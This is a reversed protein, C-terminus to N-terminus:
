NLPCGTNNEADLAAALALMADRSGSALATNVQSIVDAPTRPYNVSPHAANLVGAIGARVLLEAAGSVGSGGSFGMADLLTAAGISPYRSSESFMASVTQSPSYGTPPWSGTHNRWYGPVCGQPSSTGTYNAPDSASVSRGLAMGTATGINTHLGLAATGSASCTMTEGAALSAKPCTVTVGTNDTVAVSTLSIDGLNTVVYTWSVLGGVLVQVGPSTDADQGNVRTELSILANYGFYYAPDSSSVSGGIGDSATATGIASVQGTMAVSQATCTMSEGPSLSTKPCTVTMGGDATVTVSTLPASGTNTVVFTWSMSDGAFVQPGPPADADQGNVLLELSIAATLGVYYAPDSDTVDGGCPPTGTVSGVHVNSGALATGSAVCTMSEWPQLTTKPCAVAIGHDDTVAIAGLAVNGVNTVVYTLLLPSGVPLQSGPAVDAEVGNVLLELDVASHLEGFYHAVDDDSVDGGHVPSGFATALNSQACPLAVAQGTCTMSEGPELSGKPCDIIAVKDDVVRVSNLTETGANTVIFRFEIVEGIAISPGPPTNADAGNVTKVLQIAPEVARGFYHLPASVEIRRCPSSARVTAKLDQQGRTAVITATCVMTAGPALMTNPCAVTSGASDTVALDTLESDGRNTIEYTISLSAGEPVTPGPQLDADDGNVAAEISVITMVTGLYWAADRARLETGDPARAIVTGVHENRCPAAISSATCVFTEDSELTSSPCQVELGWSDHVVISGLASDGLNTVEYTLEITEGHPVITGPPSDTGGGNIRTSVVLSAPTLGLDEPLCFAQTDIAGDGVSLLHGIVEAPEKTVIEIWGITVAPDDLCFDVLQTSVLERVCEAAPNGAQDFVRFTVVAKTGSPVPSESPGFTGGVWVILRSTSSLWSAAPIRIAHRACDTRLNEDLPVLPAVRVHNTAPDIVLSEGILSGSGHNVSRVIVYGTALSPLVKTSYTLGDRPSPEGSLTAHLHALEDPTLTRSPLRGGAIWDTLDITYSGTEPLVAEASLVELGWNTFVEIRIRAHAPSANIISLTTQAEGGELGVEFWPLLLNPTPATEATAPLCIAFLLAPVLLRLDGRVFGVRHSM